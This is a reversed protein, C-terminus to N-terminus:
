SSSCEMLPDSQPIGHYNIAHLDILDHISLYSRFDMAMLGESHASRPM